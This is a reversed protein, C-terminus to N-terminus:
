VATVPASQGAAALFTEIAASDPGVVVYMVNDLLAAYLQGPGDIDVAAKAWTVDGIDVPQLDGVEAGVGELFGDELGPEGAVAPDVQVLLAVAITTHDIQRVIRHASFGQIAASVAPDTCLEAQLEDSQSKTVDVFTYGAPAQRTIDALEATEGPALPSPPATTTPPRGPTSPTTPPAGASPATKQALGACAAILASAVLVLALSPLTTRRQGTRARGGGAAAPVARVALWHRTM